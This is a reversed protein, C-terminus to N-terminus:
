MNFSMAPTKLLGLYGALPDEKGVVPVQSLGGVQLQQSAGAQGSAGQLAQMYFQLLNAMQEASTEGRIAQRGTMHAGSGQLGRRSYDADSRRLMNQGRLTTMDMAQVRSPDSIQQFMPLLQRYYKLFTDPSGLKLIKQGRVDAAQHAAKQSKQQRINATPDMPGTSAGM